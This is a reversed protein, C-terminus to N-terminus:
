SFSFTTGKKTLKTLPIAVRSYGDVFRCYFNSFGLFSQLEKTTSPEPWSLITDLKTPNMKIGDAGLIYGLYEVESKDWECKAPNTCLHHDRLHDLVLKVHVDHEDQTRSFILIDDLYVVCFIDLHDHLVDQIFSQFAAPPNTLGYPVILHEFLGLHTHFATKWEDGERIWLHSYASKLDIVLLLSFKAAKSV